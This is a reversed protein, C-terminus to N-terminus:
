DDEDWECIFGFNSLSERSGENNFDNWQFRYGYSTARNLFGLYSEGTSMDNNPEARGWNSYSWKEGDVWVWEGEEAEDTGGLWFFWLKQNEVMRAILAQETPSTISALHGGLSRCYEEAEKWTMNETFVRYRHGQWLVDDDESLEELVFDPIDEWTIERVEFKTEEGSQDLRAMEGASVYVSDAGSSKCRVKGELICVKAADEESTDVWGCTGRIGVVMTSTRIEMTEDEALPETINFFLRGSRLRIELANDEKTIEIRSDQDLKTLKVSDLDIWAYSESRTRVEYGSYLGLNEDADLSTGTDDSVKVRGETRRLHMTTAKTGGGCATCSFLLALALILATMQRRNEKRKM